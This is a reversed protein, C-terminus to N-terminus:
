TARVQPADGAAALWALKQTHTRSSKLIGGALLGLVMSMLAPNPLNGAAVHAILEPGTAIAARMQRAEPEAACMADLRDRPIGLRKVRGPVSDLVYDVMGGIAAEVAQGGAIAQVAGQAANAIAHRLLTADTGDISM